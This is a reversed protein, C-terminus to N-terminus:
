TGTCITAGNAGAYKGVQCAKCTTKQNENQYQGLTCLSCTALGTAAGYRGPPCNHCVGWYSKSARRRQDNKMNVQNEDQFQGVPCLKCAKNAAYRGTNCRKERRRSYYVLSGRVPHVKANLRRRTRKILLSREPNTESKFSGEPLPQAQSVQTYGDVFFSLFSLILLFCAASFRRSGAMSSTPAPSKKNLHTTACSKKTGTKKVVGVM